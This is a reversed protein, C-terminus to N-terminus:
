TIGSWIQVGFIIWRITQFGTSGGIEWFLFYILLAVFSFMDNKEGTRRCHLITHLNSRSHRGHTSQICLSLPLSRARGGGRGENARKKGWSLKPWQLEGEKQWLLSRFRSTLHPSTTNIVGNQTFYQHLDLAFLWWVKYGLEWTEDCSPLPRDLYLASIEGGSGCKLSWQPGRAITCPSEFDQTYITNIIFYLRVNALNSSKRLFIGWCRAHWM